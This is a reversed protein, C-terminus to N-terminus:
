DKVKPQYQRPLNDFGCWSEGNKINELEEEIEEEDHGSAKVIEWFKMWEDMTISGDNNVDVTNFFEKASLKAFAGKWHELSETKSIALSGDADFIRFVEEAKEHLAATLKEGQVDNPSNKSDDKPEPASTENGM